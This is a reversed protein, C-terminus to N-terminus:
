GVMQGPAEAEDTAMPFRMELITGHPDRQKLDISGKAEIMIQRAVFLGLGSGGREGKTTFFPEFLTAAVPVELGIGDDAIRCLLCGDSVFSEFEILGAQPRGDRSRAELIADASNQIANVMIQELAIPPVGVLTASSRKVVARISRESLMADLMACAAEFASLCSSSMGAGPTGASYKAVRDVIQQARGIQEIIRESRAKILEAKDSPLDTALLNINHAAFAATSLPQKLEHFTAAAMQGLDLLRANHHLIERVRKPQRFTVLIGSGWSLHGAAQKLTLLHTADLSQSSRFEVLIDSKGTANHFQVIDSPVVDLHQRAILGDSGILEFNVRFKEIDLSIDTIVRFDITNRLDKVSASLASQSKVLNVYANNREVLIDVAEQYDAISLPAAARLEPTGFKSLVDRMEEANRRILRRLAGVYLTAFGLVGLLVVLHVILRQKGKDALATTNVILTRAGSGSQVVYIQCPKALLGFGHPDPGHDQLFTGPQGCTADPASRDRASDLRVVIPSGGIVISRVDRDNSDKFTSAVGPLAARLSARYDLQMSRMRSGEWIVGTLMGLSFVFNFTSRVLDDLSRQSRPAILAGFAGPKFNNLAIDVIAAVVISQAASQVYVYYRLVPSLTPATMTMVAVTLIGFVAHFMITAEALKYGKRHLWYTCAFMATPLIGVIGPHPRTLAGLSSFVATILGPWFGLFQGAGFYLMPTVDVTQSLVRLRPSASLLFGIAAVLITAFWRFDFKQHIFRM